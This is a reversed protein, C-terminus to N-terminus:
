KECRALAPTIHEVAAALEAHSRAGQICVKGSYFVTMVISNDGKTQLAGARFVAGKQREPDYTVDNSYVHAFRELNITKGYDIQGQMNTVTYEKFGVEPYGARSILRTIRQAFRETERENGIGTVTAHGKPYLCVTGRSDSICLMSGLRRKKARHDEEDEDNAAASVAKPFKCELRPPLKDAIDATDVTVGLQWKAWVNHVTYRTRESMAALLIHTVRLPSTDGQYFRLRAFGVRVPDSQM